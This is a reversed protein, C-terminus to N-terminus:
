SPVRFISPQLKFSNGKKPGKLGIKLPSMNVSRPLTINLSLFFSLVDEMYPNQSEDISLVLKKYM